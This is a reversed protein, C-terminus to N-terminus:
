AWLVGHTVAFSWRNPCTSPVVGVGAGDGSLQSVLATV